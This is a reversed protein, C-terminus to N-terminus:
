KVVTVAESGKEILSIRGGSLRIKTVSCNDPHFAFVRDSEEIAGVIANIVVFHTVFVADSSQKKVFNLIDSRWDRLHVSQDAWTGQLVESLWKRRDGFDVGASPVEILEPAIVAERQWIDALPQATERTRNLPSSFLNVAKVEQNLRHAMELAQSRGIGSLGPDISSDWSGAAEGHRVLYLTIDM